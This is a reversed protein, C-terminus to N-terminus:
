ENFEKPAELSLIEKKGNAKVVLSTTRGSIVLPHGSKTKIKSVEIEVITSTSVNKHIKGLQYQHGNALTIITFDEEVPKLLSRVTVNKNRITINVIEGVIHPVGEAFVLSASLFIIITALLKSMIIM